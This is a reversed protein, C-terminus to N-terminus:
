DVLWFLIGALGGLFILALAVPILWFWRSIHRPHSSVGADSVTQRQEGFGNDDLACLLQYCRARYSAADLEGHGRRRGLERLEANLVDTEAPEGELRSM